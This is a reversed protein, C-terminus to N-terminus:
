GALCSQSEGARFRTARLQDIKVPDVSLKVKDIQWSVTEGTDRLFNPTVPFRQDLLIQHVAFRQQEAEKYEVRTPTPHFLVQFESVPQLEMVPSVHHDGRLRVFELSLFFLPKSDRGNPVM